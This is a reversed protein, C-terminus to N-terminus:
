NRCVLKEEKKRKLKNIRCPQHANENRMSDSNKISEVKKEKGSPVVISNSIENRKNRPGMKLKNRNVNLMYKNKCCTM